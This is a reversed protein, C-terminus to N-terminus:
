TGRLTKSNGAMNGTGQLIDQDRTINRTRQLIDQDRAVNRTRQLIDPERAINRTGQLIELEEAINGTRQLREPVRCYKQNQKLNGPKDVPFWHHGLVVLDGHVPVAVREVDRLHKVLVCAPERDSGLVGGALGGAGSHKM